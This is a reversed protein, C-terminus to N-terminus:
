PATLAVWQGNIAAALELGPTVWPTVRGCPSASKVKSPTRRPEPDPDTGAPDARARGGTTATAEDIRALTRGHGDASATRTEYAAACQGGEVIAHTVRQGTGNATDLSRPELGITRARGVWERNPDGNRSPPGTHEQLGHVREHVLTALV